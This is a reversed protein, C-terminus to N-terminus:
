INSEECAMILEQRQGSYQNCELIIHKVDEEEAGCNYCKEDEKINFKKLYSQLKGNTLVQTLEFTTFFYADIKKRYYTTPIFKRTIAGNSSQTWIEYNKDSIM